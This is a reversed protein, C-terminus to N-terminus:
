QAEGLVSTEKSCRQLEQWIVGLILITAIAYCISSTIAAGDAGLRPIAWVLNLGINLVACCLWVWVVKMPYGISNLFQVSVTHISLFLIGPMLWLYPSVSPVFAKGFLINVVWPALVASLTLLPTVIAFTGLLAKKMQLYKQHVNETASLKPLLLSAIVTPLIAIYDAMTVAISYYGASEAGRLYKVLLLDSRLVLFCFFAGFYARLGYALNVRFFKLSIGPAANAVRALRAVIVGLMATMSVLGAAFALAPSLRHGAVLCVIMFLAAVRNIVETRNYASVENVGLLLNQLLLYAIGVPIWLLGLLLLAGHLPALWPWAGFVAYSGAIAMAGIVLSVVLSNGVLNPLDVQNRSVFYVNSTHLGLCGFQIGIMGIAMAVAYLGRGTPGLARAVLITAVLGVGILFIRTAFMAMVNRVFEREQLGRIRNWWQSIALRMSGEAPVPENPEESLEDESHGGHIEGDRRIPVM